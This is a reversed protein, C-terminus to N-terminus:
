QESSPPLIAGLAWIYGDPDVVVLERWGHPYDTPPQLVTAGSLVARAEIEDPDVGLFRLEAGTGRPGPNQLRSYSPHHDYSHDAHLMFGWGNLEIAAFDHDSYRVMAGVVDRYFKVSNDVDRVLLNVTFQPMSRGYDGASMFPDGTRTKTM